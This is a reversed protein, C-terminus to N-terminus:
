GSGDGILDRLVLFPELLHAAEAEGIPLAPHSASQEWLHTLTPDARRELRARLEALEEAVPMPATM